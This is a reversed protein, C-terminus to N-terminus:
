LNSQNSGCGGESSCSSCGCGCSSCSSIGHKKRRIMNWVVAIVLGALVVSLVITGANEILFQLM